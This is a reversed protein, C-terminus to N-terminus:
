GDLETVGSREEAVLTRLGAAVPLQLLHTDLGDTHVIGGQVGLHDGDGVAAEPRESELPPEAELDGRQAIVAATRLVPLQQLLEQEPEVEVFLGAAARLDVRQAHEVVLARRHALHGGARRQHEIVEGIDGLRMELRHQPM